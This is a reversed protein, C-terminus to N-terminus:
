AGGVIDTINEIKNATTLTGENKQQIMNHIGTAVSLAGSTLGLVVSVPLLGPIFSTVLGLGGFIASFVIVIKDMTKTKGPM